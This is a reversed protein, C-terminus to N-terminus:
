LRGVATPCTLEAPDVARRNSTPSLAYPLSANISAGRCLRFTYPHANINATCILLARSHVLLLLACSNAYPGPDPGPNPPCTHVTGKGRLTASIPYRRGYCGALCPLLWSIVNM